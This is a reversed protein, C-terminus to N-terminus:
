AALVPSAPRRVAAVVQEMDLLILLRDDLRVVRTIYQAAASTALAPPPEVAAGDLTIVERVADVLFGVVYTELEIVVIRNDHSQEGAPLGFLKGLDVVPVVTERLNIIGEVADPAEPMSTCTTPRLIERVRLIDTGFEENGLMFTVVQQTEAPAQAPHETATM